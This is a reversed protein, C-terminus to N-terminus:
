PVEDGDPFRSRIQEDSFGTDRMIRKIAAQVRPSTIPLLPERERAAQRCAQVAEAEIAAEDTPGGATVHERAADLEADLTKLAARRAHWDPSGSRALDIHPRGLSDRLRKSYAQVHAAFAPDDMPDFDDLGEPNELGTRREEDPVATEAAHAEARARAFLVPDALHHGRERLLRSLTPERTGM